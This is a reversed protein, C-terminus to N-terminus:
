SYVVLTETETCVELRYEWDSIFIYTVLVKFTKVILNCVM